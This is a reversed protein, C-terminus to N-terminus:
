TPTASDPQVHHLSLAAVVGDCAPLAAALSANVFSVRERVGLLRSQAHQLM